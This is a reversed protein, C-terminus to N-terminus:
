AARHHRPPRRGLIRPAAHAAGQRALWARMRLDNLPVDVLRYRWRDRGALLPGDLKYGFRRMLTGARAELFALESPPIRGRYRGVHADSILSGDPGAEGGARLKDRYSPMGGLDLMTPEYREGVFACVERVVGAPDRVLDEYRVVRYRDGYREANRVAHRASYIWRAAAGGVRLQGEPWMTLSAEYRDRPDRIMHIMVASEYAGLVADAYGEVLGTQDGWRPKGAREASQQQMLAFLRAYTPRGLAFDRRLRDVDPELFRVHKYALMAALCADLNAPEALDGHQRYFLPWMNSGVAPISIRSHSSLIASLLTKGARDTGGIFIPGDGSM